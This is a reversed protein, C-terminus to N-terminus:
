PKALFDADVEPSSLLMGLEIKAVLVCDVGPTNYLKEATDVKTSKDGCKIEYNDISTIIAKALGTIDQVYKVDNNMVGTHKDVVPDETYIYTRREDPIMFRHHVVIQEKESLKLNGKYDPIYVGEKKVEIIM